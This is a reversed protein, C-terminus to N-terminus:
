DRAKRPKREDRRRMNHSAHKITITKMAIEAIEGQLNSQNENDKESEV